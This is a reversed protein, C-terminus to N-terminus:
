MNRERERERERERNKSRINKTEGKGKKPQPIIANWATNQRALCKETGVVFLARRRGEDDVSTDVKHCIKKNLQYILTYVFPLGRGITYGEFTNPKHFTKGFM